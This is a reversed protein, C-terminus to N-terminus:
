YYNYIYYFIQIYIKKYVYKDRTNIEHETIFNNDYPDVLNFHIKNNYFLDINDTFFETMQEHFPTHFVM